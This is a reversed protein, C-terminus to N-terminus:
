KVGFIKKIARRSNVLAPRLWPHSPSTPTKGLELARGYVVNTGVRGTVRKGTTDIEHEVSQRLHGHLVKPPEDPGAPALGVLRGSKTRRVPQDRSILRVAETQVKQAAAEMRRAVELRVEDTM